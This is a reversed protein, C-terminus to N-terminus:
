GHSPPNQPKFYRLAETYLPESCFSVALTELRARLCFDEQPHTKTNRQEQRSSLSFSYETKYATNRTAQFM